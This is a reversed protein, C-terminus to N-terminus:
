NKNEIFWIRQEHRDLEDKPIIKDVYNQLQKYYLKKEKKKLLKAQSDFKSFQFQIKEKIFQFNGSNEV